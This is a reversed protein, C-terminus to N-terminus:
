KKDYKTLNGNKTDLLFVESNARIRIDLNEYEKETVITFPTTGVARSKVFQLTLDEGQKKIEGLEKCFVMKLKEVNDFSNTVFVFTKMDKNNEIKDKIKEIVLETGIHKTQLKSNM